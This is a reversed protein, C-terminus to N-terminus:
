ISRVKSLTEFYEEATDGSLQKIRRGGAVELAKLYMNSLLTLMFVVVVLKPADVMRLAWLDRTKQDIKQWIVADILENRDKKSLEAVYGPFDFKTCDLDHVLQNRLATFKKIFRVQPKSLLELQEALNVRQSIPVRSVFKKLRADGIDRLLSDSVVAELLAHTKIVFAWDGDQHFNTLLNTHREIGSMIEEKFDFILKEFDKQKIPM